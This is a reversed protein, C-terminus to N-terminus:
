LTRATARKVAAVIDEIQPVALRELNEAYPMPIDTGTVREMPADLYDFADTEMLIAAIEAGIGHQGWGEEVTVVRSTKKASAIITDRDLPRISRLNIVEVDIGEKALVAAAELSVGVMRSFTVITVDTGAKMIKAKGIPILFDKDQAEKSVPFSTGYLLENELVVVPNPDRVAAKLLGRADESDYPIVVKLGPVSGYWAAFCQSHQAAVASAAGNSGRFVIPVAIDGNSMYFQKAASNIIQDIAQMAFNFTMFEVIPKTGHYAAGVCLGTFGAETIPTDWLRKDGYKEWLGKTVKYAGNYKAVEEGMIFVSEDRALEEDMATNLADRVTMEDAVTAMSRRAAMGRFPTSSQKLVRALM